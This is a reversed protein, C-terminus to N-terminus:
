RQPNSEGYLKRYDNIFLHFSGIWMTFFGPKVKQWDFPVSEGAILKSKTSVPKRLEDLIWLTLRVTLYLDDRFHRYFDCSRIPYFVHLFGGRVIWHYGLTCPVRQGEVAGTDEPFWVPLYAQRTLPERRLLDVVDNLDGYRFYHGHMEDNVPIPEVDDCFPSPHLVGKKVRPWYRTGYTHSFEDKNPGHKRSQDAKLAWPWQKWTEGPNFWGSVREEFHDDAWPLNPLIQARYYELQETPMPTQFSFNLVERMQAEPRKSIDFGQWRETHVPLSRHQLAASAGDIAAAFDTYIKM